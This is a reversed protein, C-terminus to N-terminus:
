PAPTFFLAACGPHYPAACTMVCASAAAPGALLLYSCGAACVAHVAAECEIVAIPGGCVRGPLTAAGLAIAFLVFKVFQM